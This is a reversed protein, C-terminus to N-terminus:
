LDESLAFIWSFTTGNPTTIDIRFTEPSDFCEMLILQIEETSQVYTTQLREHGNHMQLVCFANGFVCDGLSQFINELWENYLQDDSREAISNDFVTLKVNFDNKKILKIVCNDNAM